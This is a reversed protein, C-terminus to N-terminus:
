NSLIAQMFKSSILAFFAIRARQTQVSLFLINEIGNEGGLSVFGEILLSWPRWTVKFSLEVYFLLLMQVINACWTPVYIAYFKFM